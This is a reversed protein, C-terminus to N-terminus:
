EISVSIRVKGMAKLQEHVKNNDVRLIDVESCPSDPPNRSPSNKQPSYLVARYQEGVRELQTRLREMERLDESRLSQLCEIESRAADLDEMSSSGSEMATSLQKKLFIIENDAAELRTLADNNSQTRAKLREALDSLEREIAAKEGKMIVLEERNSEVVNLERLEDIESEKDLLKQTLDKQSNTMKSLDRELEQIRVESQEKAIQLSQLQVNIADMERKEGRLTSLQEEMSVIQDHLKEMHTEREKESEGLQSKLDEMEHTKESLEQQKQITKSKEAKLLGTLRDYEAEKERRWQQGHEMLATEYEMELRVQLVNNADQIMKQVEVETFTRQTKNFDDPLFADEDDDETNEMPPERRHNSNSRDNEDSRSFQLRKAEVVPSESASRLPRSFAFGIGPTENPSQAGTPPRKTIAPTPISIGANRMPPQHRTQSVNSKRDMNGHLTEEIESSSSSQALFFVDDQREPSSAALELAQDIARPRVTGGGPSAQQNPSQMIFHNDVDTTRTSRYTNHSFSRRLRSNIRKQTVPTSSSGDTDTSHSTSHEIAVVAGSFDLRSGTSSCRRLLTSSPLTRARTEVLLGLKEENSPTIVLGSKSQKVTTKPTCFLKKLLNRGPTRLLSVKSTSAPLTTETIPKSRIPTTITATRSYDRNENTGAINSNNDLVVRASPITTIEQTDGLSKTKFM